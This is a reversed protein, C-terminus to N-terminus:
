DDGRRQSREQRRRTRARVFQEAYIDEGARLVDRKIHGLFFAKEALTPQVDFDRKRRICFGLAIPQGVAADIDRLRRDVVRDGHHFRALLVDNDDSAAAIAHQIQKHTRFDLGVVVDAALGHHDFEGSM